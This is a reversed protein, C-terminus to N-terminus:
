VKEINRATIELDGNYLVVEGTIFVRNAFTLDDKMNELDNKFMVIKIDKNEDSVTLFLTEKDKGYGVSDIVGNIRINKGIYSDDINKIKTELPEINQVFLFLLVIGVVSILFSAKILFKDSYMLDVVIVM